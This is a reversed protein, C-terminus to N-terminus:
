NGKSTKSAQAADMMGQCRPCDAIFARLLEVEREKANLARELGEFLAELRDLRESAENGATNASSPPADATAEGPETAEAAENVDDLAEDNRKKFLGM